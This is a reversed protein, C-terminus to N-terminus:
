NRSSARTCIPHPKKTRCQGSSGRTFTGIISSVTRTPKTTKWASELRSWARWKKTRSTACVRDASAVATSTPREKLRFRQLSRRDLREASTPASTGTTDCCNPWRSIRSRTSASIFRATASTTSLAAVNGCSRAKQHTRTAVFLGYNHMDDPLGRPEAIPAFGDTDCGAFGTGNRVGALIAFENYNRGSFRPADSRLEWVGNVRTEVFLHIDTGM